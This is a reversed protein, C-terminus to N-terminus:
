LAPRNHCYRSEVRLVAPVEQADPECRHRAPDLTSGLHEEHVGRAERAVRDNQEAKDARPLKNLAREAPYHYLDGSLVIPGTKAWSSSCHSTGRRTDRHPCCCSLEMASCTTIARPWSPASRRSVPNRLRDSDRERNMTRVAPIPPITTGRRACCVAIQDERWIKLPCRTRQQAGQNDPSHALHDILEHGPAELSTEVVQIAVQHNDANGSSQCRDGWRLLSGRFPSASGPLM